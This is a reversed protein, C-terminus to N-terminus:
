IYFSNKNNNYKFNKGYWSNNIFYFSFWIVIVVISFYYSNINPTPM